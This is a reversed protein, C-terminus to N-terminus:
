LQRADLLAHPTGLHRSQPPPQLSLLGPVARPAGGLGELLSKGGPGSQGPARPRRKGLLLESLVATLVVAGCAM